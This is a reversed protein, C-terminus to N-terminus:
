AIPRQSNKRNSWRWEGFAAASYVLALGANVALSWPRSLGAAHVGWRGLMGVSLLVLPWILVRWASAKLKSHIERELLIFGLLLVSGSVVGVWLASHGLCVLILLVDVLTVFSFILLLSRKEQLSVLYQTANQLIPRAVAYPLLAWFFPTLDTWQRGFIWPVLDQFLIAMVGAMWMSSRGINFTMERYNGLASSQSARAGESYFALAMLSLFGSGVDMPLRAWAMARSYLGLERADWFTGLMLLDFGFLAKGLMGCCFLVGGFGALYRFSGRCWGFSPKWSSSKWIVIVMMGSIIARDAVLAWVGCGMWAMVLCVLSSTLNVVAKARTIFPFQLDREALYLPTSCTADMADALLLAFMVGLILANYSAGLWPILALAVLLNLGCMGLEISFQTSLLGPSLDKATIVPTRFDFARLISIYSALTGALAFVGYTEPPLLRMLLISRAFFLVYSSQQWFFVKRGLQPLRSM